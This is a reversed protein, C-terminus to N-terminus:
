HGKAKGPGEGVHTGRNRGADTQTADGRNQTIQALNGYVQLQPATYVRKEPALKTEESPGKKQEREHM